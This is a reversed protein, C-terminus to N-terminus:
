TELSDRHTLFVLPTKVPVGLIGVAVTSNNNDPRFISLEFVTVEVEHRSGFSVLISIGVNFHFVTLFALVKHEHFHVPVWVNFTVRVVSPETKGAVARAGGADSFDVTEVFDL